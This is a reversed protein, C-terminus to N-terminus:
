PNQHRPQSLRHRADRGLWTGPLRQAAIELDARAAAADGADHLAAGRLWHALGQWLFVEYSRRARGELRLLAQRALDAAARPDGALMAARGRVLVCLDRSEPRDALPQLAELAAAAPAGGELDAWATLAQWHILADPWRLTGSRADDWAGAFYAALLQLSVHMEPPQAVHAGQWVRLSFDFQARDGNAAADLALMVLEDVPAAGRERAAVAREILARADARRGAILLLEGRQRWTRRNTDAGREALALLEAGKAPHGADALSGALLLLAADRAGAEALVATHRRELAAVLAAASDPATAVRLQTERCDQWFRRRPESGRQWLASTDPNGGADLRITGGGILLRSGDRGAAEITARRRDEGLMTYSRLTGGGGGGSATLLLLDPSVAGAEQTPTWDREIEIVAAITQM